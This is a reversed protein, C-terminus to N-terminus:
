VGTKALGGTTDKTTSGGGSTGGTTSGGSTNDGTSKGGRFTFTTTYYHDGMGEQDVVVGYKQGYKWGGKPAPISLTITGDKGVTGYVHLQDDDTGDPGAFASMKTGPTLGKMHVVAPATSTSPPTLTGTGKKGGPATFGETLTKGGNATVKVLYYGGPVWGGKPAPIDFTVSGNKFDWASGTSAM